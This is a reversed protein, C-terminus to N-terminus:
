RGIEQLARVAVDVGCEARLAGGIAAARARMTPDDVARRLATTLNDATLARRPIPRPSVGLATVRNAWYPQDFGLPVVVSPVGSRLAAATTGSGGHHVIAAMRPFLWEHPVDDIVLVRPIPASRQGARGEGVAGGLGGWGRVFVGRQGTRRLAELAISTLRAAGRPTMSGFGVYVPPPGAALFAELEASPRWAPDPELIWYGTVRVGASWDDPRPVVISSFGYLTPFPLRDGRAYPGGFPVPALGLTTQRWANIQRRFPQWALQETVWHTHANFAAGLRISQPVGISPFARTRHLPQLFAAVGPVGLGEAVSWAPAAVASFVILDSGQAVRWYDALLADMLPRMGRTFERGAALMHRLRGSELWRDSKATALIARPDGTVPAFALGRGTVLERFAEHTAITVAHGARALGVGLAVYPQADGRSGATIITVRM